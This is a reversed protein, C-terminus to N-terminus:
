AVSKIMLPAQINMKTTKLIKKPREVPDARNPVDPQNVFREHNGGRWTLRISVNKLIKMMLSPKPGTILSVSEYKLVFCNRADEDYLAQSGQVIRM